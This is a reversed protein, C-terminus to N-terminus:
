LDRILKGAAFVKIFSQTLRSFVSYNGQSPTSDDTPPRIM